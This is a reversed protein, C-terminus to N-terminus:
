QGVGISEYGLVHVKPDGFRGDTREPLPPQPTFEFALQGRPAIPGRVTWVVSRGPSDEGPHFEDKWLFPVDILVRIDRIEDGSRNDLTAAIVEGRRAVNRVTVHSSADGDSIEVTVAGSPEPLAFVGAGALMVSGLLLISSTKM